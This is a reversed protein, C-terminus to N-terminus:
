KTIDIPGPRILRLTESSADVVTSPLGGPAEGPVYGDVRAGFIHRAEALTRAAPQGHLNASTATLPGGFAQLLALAPSPGPVRVGIKGDQTLPTPVSPRARLVLTLPGPWHLEALERARAPVDEVLMDLHEISPIIVGIPQAADREKLAFVREVAHEDLADALLGIFTETPCAIVCGGRLTAVYHALDAPSLTV